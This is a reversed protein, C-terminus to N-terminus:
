RIREPFLNQYQRAGMFDTDFVKRMIEIADETRREVIASFLDEAYAHDTEMANLESHAERADEEADELETLLEGLRDAADECVQVVDGEMTDSLTNLKIILEDDTNSM